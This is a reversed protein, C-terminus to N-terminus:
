EAVREAMRDLFVTRNNLPQVPRNNGQFISTYTAIQDTSLEIPQLAVFWSVGESCPPTTLSWRYRYTGHGVPLLDDVNVTVLQHHVEEGVASPLNAWVPEFAPNHDGEQILVGLVALGGDANQHVLHMEMPFHRREITHESPAHFHYQKLEYAKEGLHLNSGEDYNVQITHGNDIVDVVHEQRIIKLSGAKYDKSMHMPEGTTAGAIDIPSQERGSACTAYDPSLATWSAPGDDEGYAWHVPGGGHGTAPSHVASDPTESALTTEPGESSQPSCAPLFVLSILLLVFEIRVTKKVDASNFLVAAAMRNSGTEVREHKM